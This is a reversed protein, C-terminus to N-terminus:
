VPIGKSKLAKKIKEVETRLERVEQVLDGLSTPTAPMPIDRPGLDRGKRERKRLFDEPKYVEGM